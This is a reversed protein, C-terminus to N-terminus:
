HTVRLREAEIRSPLRKRLWATLHKSSIKPYPRNHPHPTYTPFPTVGGIVVTRKCYACRVRVGIRLLDLDCVRVLLLVTRLASMHYGLMSQLTDRAQSKHAIQNLTILNASRLPARRPSSLRRRQETSLDFLASCNCVTRRRPPNHMNRASATLLLWFRLCACVRARAFVRLTPLIGYLLAKASNTAHGSRGPHNGSAAQARARGGWRDMRYVSSKVPVTALRELLKTPLLQPHRPENHQNQFRTQM